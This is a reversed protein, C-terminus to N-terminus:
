GSTGQPDGAPHVHGEPDSASGSLSVQSGEDGTYPGGADATPADNFVTIGVSQSATGGDDDTVTVTITYDGPSAYVHAATCVGDVIVGASTIGDGWDVTCTLSDNAADSVEASVDVLDGERFFAGDSPATITVSPNTESLTLTASSAVPPNVGDDVSLTLSFQGADTCTITTDLAAADTFTCTTGPDVGLGPTYSWAYTLLDGDPDSSTGDLNVDSGESGTYPGGASVTPPDNLEFDYTTNVGNIGLTLADTYGTFALNWSAGAALQVSGNHRVGAHPFWSLLQTITCPNSQTCRNSGLNSTAYWKGTLANWTYWTDELVTGVGATRFPEFVLWGQNSRDPDDINYDMELQLTITRNNNPDSTSRYSSYELRTLSDLRTSPFGTTELSYGGNNNTTLRASGFGLPPTDPGDTIAGSGSPAFQHFSWDGMSSPTIVVTTDALARDVTSFLMAIVILIVFIPTLKNM